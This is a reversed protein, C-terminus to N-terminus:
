PGGEPTTTTTTPLLPAGEPDALIREFVCQKIPEPEPHDRACEAAYISVHDSRQRIDGEPLTARELLDVATEVDKLTQRNTSATPILYGLAVAMGVVLLAAAAVVTVAAWRYRRRLQREASEVPTEITM